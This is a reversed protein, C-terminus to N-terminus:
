LSYCDLEWIQNKDMDSLKEFITQWDGCKIFTRKIWALKLADNLCFLNTLKLGGEVFDQELQSLTMRPKSTGWIFKRFLKHLLNLIEESPKPLVSMPYVLKPIALSKIVTIKGVLSIKRKAYSNLLKEINALRPHYNKDMMLEINNTFEIGLLKFHKVWNLNLDPCLNNNANKLFGIWAVQTKQMNMKLGSCQFFKEFITISERLSNESGDLLLFTDDAYQGIKYQDSGIKIGQINNNNKVTMALPEIALIFIYPSLPDGQRCGRGLHFQESLYGNNIVCSCSDTYLIKFWKIFSSGFNYARLIKTMYEWEISDFAKEFDILLILGEKGKKKFISIIDYVLRINEGIYRDKLFGKPSSSIIHPLVRRMRMALIGSLIKYDVNLLTIPRLNKMFEQSKEGKPLCTLIGLRQTISLKSKTFAENLSDILFKGLDNWFFKYFEAPFGDSGPVKGNKMNKLVEKAEAETILGECKNQDNESLKTINKRDLFFNADTSSLCKSSYLDNYFSRMERLIDKQNYILQGNVNLKSVSKSSSNRKEINCFFKTPKEGEEYYQVKSRMVIARIKRQRLAELDNQLTRLDTEIQHLIHKSVNRQQTCVLLDRLKLINNEMTQEQKKECKAKYSSYSITKGRVNLKIMEFIMQNDMVTTTHDSKIDSITNRIETKVMEVYQIDQLLSTNLKWYSRGRTINFNELYLYIFSHDTRYGHYMGVKSINLQIDPTVLYFDLRAMQRPSKTSFWTYKKLDQNATRWPDTLDLITKIYEVKSQASKNNEHVYGFTDLQYNQVLNWDGCIVISSIDSELLKQKMNIYFNPDDRNPGYITVLLFEFHKSVLLKVITLNGDNQKYISKIEFDLTASFLIAVGRSASSNSNLICKGGWDDMFQEETASDSHTDQLCYIDM